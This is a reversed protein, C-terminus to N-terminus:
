LIAFPHDFRDDDNRDDRNMLEKLKEITKKLRIVLNRM